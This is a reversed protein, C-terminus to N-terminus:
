KDVVTKLFDLTYRNGLQAFSIMMQMGVAQNMENSDRTEVMGLVYRLALYYDGLEAWQEREKLAKILANLLEDFDEIFLKKKNTSKKENKRTEYIM